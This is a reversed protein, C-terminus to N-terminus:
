TTGERKRRCHAIFSAQFDPDNRLLKLFTVVGCDEHWDDARGIGASAIDMVAAEWTRQRQAELADMFEEWTEPLPTQSTGGVPNGPLQPTLHVRRDNM